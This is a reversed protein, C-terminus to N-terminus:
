RSHGRIRALLGVALWLVAILLLVGFMAQDGAGAGLAFWLLGVVLLGGKLAELLSLDTRLRERMGAVYVGPALGLICVAVWILASVFVGGAVARFGCSSSYPCTQGADWGKLGLLGLTGLCIGVGVTIVAVRGLTPGAAFGLLSGVLLLGLWIPTPSVAGVLAWLTPVAVGYLVGLTAIV